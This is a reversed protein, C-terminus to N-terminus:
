IRMGSEMKSSQYVLTLYRYTYVFIDRSSPLGFYAQGLCCTTHIGRGERIEDRKIEGEREIEKWRGREGEREMEKGRRRGGRAQKGEKGEKWERRRWNWGSEECIEM